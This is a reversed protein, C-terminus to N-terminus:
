NYGNELPTKQQKRKLVHRFDVQSPSSEVVKRLTGDAVDFNTKRLKARMDSLSIQRTVSPTGNGIHNDSKSKPVNRDESRQMDGNTGNELLRVHGGGNMMPMTQSHPLPPPPPPPPPAPAGTPSDMAMDLPPPPPPMDPDHGYSVNLTNEEEEEEYQGYDVPIQSQVVTKRWFSVVSAAMEKELRKAMEHPDNDEEFFASKDTMLDTEVLGNTPYEIEDDSHSTHGNTLGKSKSERVMSDYYESQEQGMVSASLGSAMHATSTQGSTKPTSTGIFSGDEGTDENAISDYYGTEQESMISKDQHLKVLHEARAEDIDM